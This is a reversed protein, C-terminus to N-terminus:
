VGLKGLADYVPPIVALVVWGLVAALVLTLVPEMAQQLRAVATDIDRRYMDGLRLLAQDLDGSREGLRVMRVLLSPFVAETTMAGSVSLGEQVRERVRWLAAAIARNGSLPPLLRLIELVPVGAAYLQSFCLAIRALAIRAMMSGLLPLRLALADLRLQLGPYWRRVSQLLLWPLPVLVGLLLGYGSLLQSLTILLRTQLPLTQGLGQLFLSLKPVLWTLLFACVLAVVLAAIAPYILMTRTRSLLTQQWRLQAHIDRLITVLRGSQEGAAVLACSVDDFVAPFRALAMSLSAGGAIAERLGAIIERMAAETCADHLEQLADLLPVGAELLVPLEYWFDILQRRGPGQAVVPALSRRCSLLELGRASLQAALHERDPARGRGRHRGGREDLAKYIWTTM